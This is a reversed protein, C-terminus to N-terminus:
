EPLSNFGGILQWVQDPSAPIDIGAAARSGERRPGSAFTGTRRRAKTLAVRALVRRPADGEARRSM